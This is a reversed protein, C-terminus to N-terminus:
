ERETTGRETTGRERQQRERERNDRERQQRERKQGERERKDRERLQTEREPLAVNLAQKLISSALTRSTATVDKIGNIVWCVNVQMTIITVLGDRVM